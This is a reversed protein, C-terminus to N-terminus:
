RTQELRERTADMLAAVLIVSGKVMLVTFSSLGM